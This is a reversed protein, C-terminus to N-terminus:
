VITQRVTVNTTVQGRLKSTEPLSFVMIIIIIIIIIIIVIVLSM